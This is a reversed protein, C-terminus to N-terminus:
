PTNMSNTAAPHNTDMGASNTGSWRIPSQDNRRRVIFQYKDGPNSNRQRM